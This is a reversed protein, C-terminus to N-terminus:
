PAHQGHAFTPGGKCVDHHDLGLGMRQNTLGKRGSRFVVSTPREQSTHVVPLQPIVPRGGRERERDGEGKREERHTLEGRQKSIKEIAAHSPCVCVCM